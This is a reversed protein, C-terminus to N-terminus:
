GKEKINVTLRSGAKAAETVLENAEEASLVDGPLPGFRNTVSIVRFFNARDKKLLNVIQKAM